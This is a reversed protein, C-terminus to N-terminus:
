KTLRVFKGNPACTTTVTYFFDQRAFGGGDEWAHNTTKDCVLISSLPSEVGKPLQKGEVFLYYSTSPEDTRLVLNYRADAPDDSLSCKVASGVVTARQGIACGDYKIDMQLVLKTYKGLDFTQTPRVTMIGQGGNDHTTPQYDITGLITEVTSGPRVVRVTVKKYYYGQSKNPKFNITKPKMPAIAESRTSLDITAIGAMQMVSNDHKSEITVQITQGVMKVDFITGARLRGKEAEVFQRARAISAASNTGDYIAGGALAASDGINQIVEKEKHAMALDIVSGAAYFLPIAIIATMM